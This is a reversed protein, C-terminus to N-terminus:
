DEKLVFYGRNTKILCKGKIKAVVRRFDEKDKIRNGEINLIVDGRELGSKEAPSDEKIDVIVVGEKEKIRFRRQLYPTIDEVKMGRFVYGEEASEELEQIDEPRKGVKVTLTIEKGSRLIVVPIKEGVQTSTVMRVLDRSAKVKKNNFVLILDGEKIGAHEAPSNKFVKVVIVGKKERIGFYNRLDENLDQISVGLWGYLIKEGRILKKLIRKAKNIPIAFGIGQYGGTTTIIATNIGIVEGDLNILPGGSNGPNIAADTQILDDYARERKGLSPLYRHLASIVGMTVTPEPNEIAFGFPNGIALVWQGIKVDDSNGLKAVPLNHADIKIVALDSRRDKGKLVADFERGDSLKVKIEKAGAIVHENTLIYGEKDIIVGSGLGIRKYEREPMEGFFEEFFKRFFEDGFDEFPSGRFYIGGVKERVVASISVVAEGVQEAVKVTAEELDKVRQSFGSFPIGISLLFFAGITLVRRMM